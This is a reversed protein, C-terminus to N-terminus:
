RFILFPSSTHPYTGGGEGCRFDQSRRYTVDIIPSGDIPIGGGSFTEMVKVKSGMVKFVYHTQPGLTSFVQTLKPEFVKLPAPAISSV